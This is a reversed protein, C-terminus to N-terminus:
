PRIRSSLISRRQVFSSTKVFSNIHCESPNLRSVLPQVYCQLTSFFSIIYNYPKITPVCSRDQWSEGYDEIQLTDMNDMSSMASPQDCNGVPKKGVQRKRALKLLYHVRKEEEDEEAKPMGFKKRLRRCVDKALKLTIIRGGGIFQLVWGSFLKRVCKRRLGGLPLLQGTSSMRDKHDKNNLKKFMADVIIKAHGVRIAKQKRCRSPM